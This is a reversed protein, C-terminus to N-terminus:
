RKLGERIVREDQSYIVRFWGPEEASMDRGNTVYVKHKIFREMLDDEAKWRERLSAHSSVSLFPRFDVWIFFGANAGKRYQIGEDDLIQRVLINRAGLRERSRHLFNDMWSEDDLMAIAVRENASGSWHFASIASLARLLESNRTYIVGMRIGSAGTDKSMGYLLHLYKSDIYKETEIALVSEFKVAKPDAVDYVSKAYIEDALLHIKYKNCLQMFAILTKRPYCQGLPHHPHCLMLARIRIGNSEANHLTEEYKVVAEPSFQDVSGFDVYLSQM